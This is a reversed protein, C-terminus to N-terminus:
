PFALNDSALIRVESRGHTNSVAAGRTMVVCNAGWVVNANTVRNRSADRYCPGSWGIM